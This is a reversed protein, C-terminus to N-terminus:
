RVVGFEHVYTAETSFHEPVPIGAVASVGIDRFSPELINARHKPSRMWSRLVSRPTSSSAGGWALNEGVQWSPHGRLYGTRAIRSNFRAGSRSNHTFYSHRVMDLAHRRAALALLRNSRLARLGRRRRELNVLCHTARALKAYSAQGPEADAAPCVARASSQAPLAAQALASVFLVAALRGPTRSPM